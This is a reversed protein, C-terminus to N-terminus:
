AKNRRACSSIDPDRTNQLCHPCPRSAVDVMPLPPPVVAAAADNADVADLRAAVGADSVDLGTAVAADAADVGAVVSAGDADVRNPGIPGIPCDIADLAVWRM